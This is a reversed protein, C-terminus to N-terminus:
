VGVLKSSEAFSLSKRGGPHGAKAFCAIKRREIYGRMERTGTSMNHLKPQRRALQAARTKGTLPKNPLTLRNSSKALSAQKTSQLVSEPVKVRM